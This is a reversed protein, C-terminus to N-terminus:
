RLPNHSRPANMIQDRMAFFQPPKLPKTFFDALNDLTNVYPVTIQMNEVCERIYFHRREIHKTRQHHEPNYSLDRAGTNDTGLELPESLALDLEDLFNALYVGEKAAESAAVIEAECSSLSITDQRKSAWSIAASNYTFVYGTTSRHTSWDSDSLGRLPLQDSEYRLGLDRHRHLYRLVDLASEYLEETPRSMARCLLGVSYAIDPRTNTACYLLAGVLSQYRQRVDADVSEVPQCMANLVQDKLRGDPAAPVKNHKFAVAVGSPLHESVLRDIYATQRLTVCSGERTIEVGLLDSIEGEDEVDWKAALDRSFKHYLSHEDDHSYLTFLDDVYCGLILRENRPGDPTDVSRSCTFVCPDSHCQVFGWSVLWPYLSRQWRRGAQAMGYIPKEVRCVRQRGDAGETEYGPPMHCYVVEGDLLSGQLYAAVFDWRHMKLGLRAGISALLRLSTSRMAASFTQDYDVGPVQACGQVCLRSKLKGNRKVKYVWILRVLKRGPPLDSRDILTWSKNSEHNTLEAAESEKWGNRDRRYADKQSVPDNPGARAQHAFGITSFGNEVLWPRPQVRQQEARKCLFAGGLPGSLNPNSSRTAQRGLGRGHRTAPLPTTPEPDLHLAEEDDSDYARAAPSLPPPSRAPTPPAAAEVVESAPTSTPPAGGRLRPPASDDVSVDVPSSAPRPALPPASDARDAGRM